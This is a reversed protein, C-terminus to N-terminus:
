FCVRTARLRVSAIDSINLSRGSVLSFAKQLLLGAAVIIAPMLLAWAFGMITQKYRIKLERLIFMLFLYRYTVVERVMRGM